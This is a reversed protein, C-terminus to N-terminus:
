NIYNFVKALDLCVNTLEEDTGVQSYYEVLSPIKVKAEQWLAAYSSLKEPYRFNTHRAVLLSAVKSFASDPSLNASFQRYESVQARINKKVNCSLEKLELAEIGSSYSKVSTFLDLQAVLIDVSYDLDALKALMREQGAQKTNAIACAVLHAANDILEKTNNLDPKIRFKNRLSKVTVELKDNEGKVLWGGEYSHDTIAIFKDLCVRLLYAMLCEHSVKLEKALRDWTPKWRADKGPHVLKIEDETYTHLLSLRSLSGSDMGIYDSYNHSNTAGLMVCVSRVDLHPQGKEETPLVENSALMKTVNGRIFPKQTEATLDDVSALDSTAVRGYGFPRGTTPLSCTSYGLIGLTKNLYGMWTSKGMGASTGVLIAYSRFTHAITGEAVDTDRAGMALRGLLLMLFEAEADPLLSLLERVDLQRVREPFWELLPIYKFYGPRCTLTAKRHTAGFKVRNSAVGAVDSKPNNAVDCFNRLVKVWMPKTSKNATEFQENCVDKIAQLFKVRESDKSSDVRKWYWFTEPINLGEIKPFMRAYADFGCFSGNIAPKLCFGKYELERDLIDVLDSFSTLELTPEDNDYDVNKNVYGEYDKGSDMGPRRMQPKGM